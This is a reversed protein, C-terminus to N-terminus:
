QHEGNSFAASRRRPTPLRRERQGPCGRKPLDFGRRQVRVGGDGELVLHGARRALPSPDIM